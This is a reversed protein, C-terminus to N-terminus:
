CHFYLSNPPFINEDKIEVSTCANARRLNPNPGPPNETTVDTVTDLKVWAAPRQATADIAGATTVNVITPQWVDIRCKPAAM